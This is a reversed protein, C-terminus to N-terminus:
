RRTGGSTTAEAPSGKEPAKSTAGYTQAGAKAAEIQQQFQMQQMQMQARADRIQKVEEASKVVTENVDYGDAAIEIYADMDLKDLVSPSIEAIALIESLFQKTTNLSRGRKQLMALPSVFDIKLQGDEMGNPAPSLNQSSMEQQYVAELVPEIFEHSLRSVFSSMIASKEDVLAQVETATKKRDQLNMLALFFDTHYGSKISERIEMKIEQTWSMDGVIQVPAFDAGPTLETMGHPTFNVKLGETKKIPPRGQLQSVRLQDDSMIQLMKINPIHVSGPNDVGWPSGAPSSAWRWTFFPKEDIREEKVPTQADAAAWYISVWKGEGPIDTKIRTDRAIYQFFEYVSIDDDKNQTITKPLNDEGFKEIADDKNLWFSRILTGVNRHRDEEIVYSGPHLNRFVPIDEVDDREVTMVATGFDACCRIFARSEDYFNSKGLQQDLIHETEQLWEKAISNDKLAKDEFRLRFWAVNRGFAYGQLGDAMLNSAETATTDYIIRYDPAKESGPKGLKVSSYSPALYRIIDAWQPEFIGRYSELQKRLREIREMQKATVTM